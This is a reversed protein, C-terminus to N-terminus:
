FISIRFWIYYVGKKNFYIFHSALSNYGFHRSFNYMISFSHQMHTRSPLLIIFHNEVWVIDSVMLIFKHIIYTCSNVNLFPVPYVRQYSVNSISSKCQKWGPTTRKCSLFGPSVQIGDHQFVDPVSDLKNRFVSIVAYKVCM